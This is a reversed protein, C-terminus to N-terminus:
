ATAAAERWRESYGALDVDLPGVPTLDVGHAADARWLRAAGLAVGGDGCTLVPQDPRLASLAAPFVADAAFRGELVIPGESRVLSLCADTMLALHLAAVAAREGASSPEGILQGHGNPYPGCGPAFSPTAM